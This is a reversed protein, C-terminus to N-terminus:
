VGVTILFHYIEARFTDGAQSYIKYDGILEAILLGVYEAFFM